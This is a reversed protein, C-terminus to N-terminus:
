SPILSPLSKLWILCHKNYSCYLLFQQQEYLCTLSKTVITTLTSIVTGLHLM